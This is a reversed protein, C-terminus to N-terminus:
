FIHSRMVGLRQTPPPAVQLITPFVGPSQAVGLLKKAQPFIIEAIAFRGKFFPVDADHLHHEVVMSTSAIRKCDCLGSGFRMAVPSRRRTSQLASVFCAEAQVPPCGDHIQKTTSDRRDLVAHHWVPQSPPRNTSKATLSQPLHCHRRQLMRGNMRIEQRRKVCPGIACDRLFGIAASRVGRRTKGNAAQDAGSIYNNSSARDHNSEAQRLTRLARGSMGVRAHLVALVDQFQSTAPARQRQPHGFFIRRAANRRYLSWAVVRNEDLGRGPTALKRVQSDDRRFYDNQAM